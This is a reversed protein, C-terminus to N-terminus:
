GRGFFFTYVSRLIGVEKTMRAITSPNPPVGSGPKSGGADAPRQPGAINAVALQNLAIEVQRQQFEQVEEISIEDHLVKGLDKGRDAEVVVLDMKKIDGALNKPLYFLDTRGGKFEVIYLQCNSAIQHLPVGKGLESLENPGPGPTGAGMMMPQAHGPNPHGYVPGFGGNGSPGLLPSSTAHPHSMGGPYFPQILSPDFAGSMTGLAGFSRGSVPESIQPSHTPQTSLLGHASFTSVAPGSLASPAQSAPGPQGFPLRSGIPQVVQPVAMGPHGVQSAFFRAAQASASFPDGASFSSKRALHPPGGPHSAPQQQQQHQHQHHQQQQQPQQQQSASPPLPSPMHGSHNSWPMMLQSVPQEMHRHQELSPTRHSIPHTPHDSHTHHFEFSSHNPKDQTNTELDMNLSNLDSSLLLDDETLASTGSGFMMQGGASGLRGNDVEFRRSEALNRLGSKSNQKAIMHPNALYSRSSLHDLGQTLNRGGFAAVSHRRSTAGSKTPPAFEDDEDLDNSLSRGSLFWSESGLSGVLGDPGSGLLGTGPSAGLGGGVPGSSTSGLRLNTRGTGIAGLSSDRARSSRFGTGSNHGAAFPGAFAISGSPLLTTGTFPSMNSLAIGSRASSSSPSGVSPDRGIPSPHAGLIDRARSRGLREEEICSGQNSNSSSGHWPGYFTAPLSSPGFIGGAPSTPSLHGSYPDFAPSTSGRFDMLSVPSGIMSQTSTLDRHSSLFGQRTSAIPPHGTLPSHLDFESTVSSSSTTPTVVTQAWINNTNFQSPMPLSSPQFPKANVSDISLRGIQSVRSSFSPNRFPGSDDLASSGRPSPSPAKSSHSDTAQSNSPQLSPLGFPSADQLQLILDDTSFMSHRPSPAYAFTQNSAPLEDLRSPRLSDLQNSEADLTRPMNATM